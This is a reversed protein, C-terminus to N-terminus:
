TPGNARSDLVPLWLTELNLRNNAAEGYKSTVAM